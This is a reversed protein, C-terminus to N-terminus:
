RASEAHRRLDALVSNARKRRPLGLARDIARDVAQVVAPDNVDLTIIRIVRDPTTM